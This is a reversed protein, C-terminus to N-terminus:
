APSLMRAKAMQGPKVIVPMASYYRELRPPSLNSASIGSPRTASGSSTAVATRKRAISAGGDIVPATSSM